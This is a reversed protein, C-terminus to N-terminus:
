MIHKRIKSIRILHIMIQHYM